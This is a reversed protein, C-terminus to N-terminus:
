AMKNLKGALKKLEGSNYLAHVSRADYTYLTDLPVGAKHSLEEAFAKIDDRLETNEAVTGIYIVNGEKGYDDGRKKYRELRELDEEQMTDYHPKIFSVGSFRVGSLMKTELQNTICVM